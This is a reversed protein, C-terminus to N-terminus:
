KAARTAAALVRGCAVGCTKRMNYDYACKGPKPIIETSCVQCANRPGDYTKRGKPVTALASCRKSCYKRKEWDAGKNYSRHFEKQCHQCIKTGYLKFTVPSGRLKLTSIYPRM